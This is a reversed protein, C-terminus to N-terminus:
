LNFTQQSFNTPSPESDLFEDSPEVESNNYNSNIKFITQPSYDSDMYPSFIHAPSLPSTLYQSLLTTAKSILHISFPITSPDLKKARRPRFFHINESCLNVTHSQEITKTCTDDIIQPQLTIHTLNPAENYTTIISCVKQQQSHIDVIKSTPTIIKYVTYTHHHQLHLMQATKQLKIQM